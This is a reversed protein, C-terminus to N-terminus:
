ASATYKVANAVLERGDNTCVRCMDHRQWSYARTPEEQEWTGLTHKIHHGDFEFGLVMTLHRGNWVDWRPPWQPVTSNLAWYVVDKRSVLGMIPEPEKESDPATLLPRRDSSVDEENRECILTFTEDLAERAETSDSDQELVSPPWDVIVRRMVPEDWSQCASCASTMVFHIESETMNDVFPRVLCAAVVAAARAGAVNVAKFFFWALDLYYSLCLPGTTAYLSDTSTDVDFFAASVLGQAVFDSALTALWKFTRFGAGSKLVFLAIAQQGLLGVIVIRWEIASRNRSTAWFGLQFLVGRIGCRFRAIAM